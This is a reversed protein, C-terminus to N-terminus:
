HNLFVYPLGKASVTAAVNIGYQREDLVTFINGRPYTICMLTGNTSQTIIAGGNAATTAAELVFAAFYFLVATFHYVVDQSLSSLLHNPILLIHMHRQRFLDTDKRSAQEAM